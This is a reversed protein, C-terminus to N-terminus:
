GLLTEVLGAGAGNLTAAADWKAVLAVGEGTANAYGSSNNALGARDLAAASRANVRIKLGAPKAAVLARLVKKQAPTITPEM